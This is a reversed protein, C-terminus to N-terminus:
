IENFTAGSTVCLSIFYSIKKPTDFFAGLYHCSMVYSMWTKCNSPIEEPNGWSFEPIEGASLNTPYLGRSGSSFQHALRSPSSGSKFSKLLPVTNKGTLSPIWWFFFATLWGAFASTFRAFQFNLGVVIPNNVMNLQCVLLSVVQFVFPRVQLYVNRRCILIQLYVNKRPCICVICKRSMCM